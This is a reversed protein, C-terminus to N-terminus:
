VARVTAHRNLVAWLREAELLPYRDIWPSCVPLPQHHLAVLAPREDGALDADLAALAAGTLGGPVAGPVASNLGLVRWHDGGIAVPLDTVSNPIAAALADADDHNGPLALIPVGVARLREALWEYSEPSADESLDGSALLLDPRWARVVPLLAELTARPDRGRYRAGPGGSVHCDSLQLVRM